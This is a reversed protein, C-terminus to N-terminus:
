NPTLMGYGSEGHYADDMGKMEDADTSKLGILKEVIILLIITLTAAYAIAILVALVQIGLQQMITWSGAAAIADDMWSQRIFFSLLIAGVIGGVGHIGFVDLTDDYGMKNKFLIASYCIASAAIGLAMAGAPQVVGAAPTAAVLGALIGSAFGLATAKGQHFGEIIVWAIAGAAAAAQTATLAQATALGVRFVVEQMLALGVLGFFDQM